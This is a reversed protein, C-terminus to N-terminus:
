GRWSSTIPSRAPPKRGAIRQLKRHAFRDAPIRQVGREVPMTILVDPNERRVLKGDVATGHVFVLRRFTEKMFLLTLTSYSTGVMVATAAEPLDSEWVGVRGTLHVGSDFTLIAHESRLAADMGTGALPPDLKAGLDGVESTETFEVDEPRVRHIPVGRSELEDCILEYAVFAGLYTWHSDTQHYLPGRERAARLEELPFMPPVGVREGIELVRHVLRRDVVEIDPPLKDEYVSEKDPTMCHIWEAGVEQALRRRGSYVSRWRLEWLKGRRLQGTHQALTQNSDGGLFLWGDRGPVAYVRAADSGRRRWRM